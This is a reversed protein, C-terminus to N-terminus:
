QFPFRQSPFVFRMRPITKGVRLPYWKPILRFRWNGQTKGVCVFSVVIPTFNFLDEGCAPSAASPCLPMAVLTGDEGCVPFVLSYSEMLSQVATM